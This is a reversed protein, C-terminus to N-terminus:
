ASSHMVLYRGVGILRVRQQAVLTDLVLDLDPVLPLRKDGRTFTGIRQNACYRLVMEASNQAWLWSWGLVRDAVGTAARVVAVPIVGPVRDTRILEALYIRGVLQPVFAITARVYGAFLHLDGGSACRATLGDCWAQYAGRAQASLEAGLEQNDHRARYRTAAHDNSRDITVLIARMLADPNPYKFDADRVIQQALDVPDAVNM